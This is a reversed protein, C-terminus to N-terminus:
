AQLDKPAKYEEVSELERKLSAIFDKNSVLILIEAIDELNCVIEDIMEIIKKHYSLHIGKLDESIKNLQDLYTSLEKSWDIFKDPITTAIKKEEPSEFEMSPISQEFEDLFEKIKGLRRILRLIHFFVIIRLKAQTVKKILIKITEIEIADFFDQSRVEAVLM